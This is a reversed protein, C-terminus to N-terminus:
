KLFHKGVTKVANKAAILKGYEHTIAIEIVNNSYRSCFERLKFFYPQVYYHKIILRYDNETKYLMSKLDLKLRYLFLIGSIMNECTEFIFLYERLSKYRRNKHPLVSATM